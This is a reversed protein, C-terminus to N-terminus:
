RTQYKLKNNDKNSRKNNLLKETIQFESRWDRYMSKKSLISKRKLDNKVNKIVVCM